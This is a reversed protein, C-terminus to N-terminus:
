QEFDKGNDAVGANRGNDKGFRAEQDAKEQGPITQEERRTEQGGLANKVDHRQTYDGKDGGDCAVRHAIPEAVPHAPLDELPLFRQEEMFMVELAGLLEVLLVAALGNDQGAEHRDDPRKGGYEGPHPAHGIGLENGIVDDAAQGPPDADRQGAVVQAAENRIDVAVEDGNDQADNDEGHQRGSDMHQFVFVIACAEQTAELTGPVLKGGRRCM